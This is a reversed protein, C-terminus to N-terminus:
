RKSRPYVAYISLELSLGAAAALQVFAEPFSLFCAPFDKSIRNELPFDLVIGEVGPFRKLRRLENKNKEIFKKADRIQAPLNLWSADSVNLNFSSEVNKKKVTLGRPEGRRFVALPKWSSRKLFRDVDFKRGSARLVCM